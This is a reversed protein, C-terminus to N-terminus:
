PLLCFVGDISEQVREEQFRFLWMVLLKQGAHPYLTHSVSSLSLSLSLSGHYNYQTYAYLTHNLLVRPLYTDLRVQAQQAPKQATRPPPAIVKKTSSKEAISREQEEKEQRQAEKKAKKARIREKRELQLHM